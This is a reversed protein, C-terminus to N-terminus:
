VNATISIIQNIIELQAFRASFLTPSPMLIHSACILEWKGLQQRIEHFGPMIIM